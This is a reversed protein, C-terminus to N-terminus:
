MHMWGIVDQLDLAREATMQLRCSSGFLSRITGDRWYYYQFGCEKDRYDLWARQADRLKDFADPELAQKLTAYNRNLMEDWWAIERSACMVMGVTTQNDPSQEECAQEAVGICDRYDSGAAENTGAAADGRAEFCNQMAANDERTYAPKDDAPVASSMLTMLPLAFFLRRLM